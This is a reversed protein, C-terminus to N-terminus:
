GIRASSPMCATRRWSCAARSGSTRGSCSSRTTAACRRASPTASQRSSRRSRCDDVSDEAASMDGEHGELGHSAGFGWSPPTEGPWDEAFVWQMATRPDPEPANEAYDTAADIDDKVEAAITTELEDTLVGADKLEKRFRPLPDKGQL